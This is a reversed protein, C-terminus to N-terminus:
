AALLGALDVLGPYFPGADDGGGYRFQSGDRRSRDALRQRASGRVGDDFTIKGYADLSVSLAAWVDISGPATCRSVGSPARRMAAFMALLQRLQKRL